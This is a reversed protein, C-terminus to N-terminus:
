LASGILVQAPKGDILSVVWLQQTITSGFGPILTSLSSIYALKDGSPSVAPYDQPGTQTMFLKQSQAQFWYACFDAHEDPPTVKYATYVIGSGDSLWSPFASREGSVQLRTTSRNSLNMVWLAGDSTSYAIQEGNPSIPPTREDVPTDTLQTLDKGDGNMVFLDWNGKLNAVFAIGGKRPSPRVVLSVGLALVLILSGVIINRLSVRTM